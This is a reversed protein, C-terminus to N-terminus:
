TLEFAVEKMSNRHLSFPNLYARTYMIQSKSILIEEQKYGEFSFCHYVYIHRFYISVAYKKRM